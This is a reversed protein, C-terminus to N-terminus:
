RQKEYKDEVVELKILDDIIKNSCTEIFSFIENKDIILLKKQNLNKIMLGLKDVLIDLKDMPIEEIKSKPYEIKNQFYYLDLMYADILDQNLSTYDNYIIHKLATYRVDNSGTYDKIMKPIFDKFWYYDTLLHVLYGQEFPNNMDSKYKEVFRKYDPLEDENADESLFHSKNKSEGIQKAIDPAIAGLSFIREDNQLYNHIKKAVCLHIVASAM